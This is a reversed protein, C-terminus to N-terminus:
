RREFTVEQRSSETGTLDFQAFTGSFSAIKATKSSNNQITDLKGVFKALKRDKQDLITFVIRTDTIGGRIKGIESFYGGKDVLATGYLAYDDVQFDTIQWKKSEITAYFNGQIRYEFLRDNVCKLKNDEDFRKADSRIQKLKSYSSEIIELGKGYRQKLLTLKDHFNSIIFNVSNRNYDSKPIGSTNAIVKKSLNEYLQDIEVIQSEFSDFEDVISSYDDIGNLDSYDDQSNNIDSRYTLFASCPLNNADPRNKLEQFESRSKSFLAEADDLRKKIILSSKEIDIVQTEIKNLNDNLESIKLKLNSNATEVQNQLEALKNKAAENATYDKQAKEVRKNFKTVANNFVELNSPALVLKDIRGNKNTVNLLLQGKIL